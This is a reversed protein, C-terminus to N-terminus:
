SGSTPTDSGLAGAKTLVTLGDFPGGRVRCIPVQPEVATLIDVGEVSLARLVDIATAGGTVILMPAPQCIDVPAVRRQRSLGFADALYGALGASGSLLFRREVGAAAEALHQLHAPSVANAILVTGKPQTLLHRRLAVAGAEVIRLPIEAVRLQTNESLLLDLRSEHVPAAPDRGFETLDIPVGDLLHRGDLTTRGAEPLAPALLCLDFCGSAMLVKLEAAVPGRITTDLTRLSSWADQLSRAAAEDSSNRTETDVVLVDLEFLESMNAPCTLVVTRLGSGAFRLGTDCSGTFDDAIILCDLRKPALPAM